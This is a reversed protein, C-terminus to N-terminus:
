IDIAVLSISLSLSNSYSKVSSSLFVNVKNNNHLNVRVVPLKLIAFISKFTFVYNKLNLKKFRGLVKFQSISYMGFTFNLGIVFDFERSINDM